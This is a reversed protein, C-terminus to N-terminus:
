DEVAMIQSIPVSFMCCSSVLSVLCLLRETGKAQPPNKFALYIYCVSQSIAIFLSCPINYCLVLYIRMSHIRKLLDIHTHIYINVRSSNIYLDSHLVFFDPIWYIKPLKKLWLSSVEMVKWEQYSFLCPWALGLTYTYIVTTCIFLICFSCESNFIQNYM